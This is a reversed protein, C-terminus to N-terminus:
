MWSAAFDYFEHRLNNIIKESQIYEEKLNNHQTVLNSSIYQNGSDKLEKGAETVNLKIDHVLKDIANKQLRFQNEFHEIQTAVEKATNKGAVETLRSSLISIESKYFDLARLWDNHANGLHTINIKTM